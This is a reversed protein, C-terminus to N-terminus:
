TMANVGVHKMVQARVEADARQRAHFDREYPSLIEKHRQFMEQRIDSWDTGIGHPVAVGCGLRSAAEEGADIGPNSGTREATEHDNDAAVVVSGDPVRGLVGLSYMNGASFAAMVRSTRLCAFLALATAVGEALVTLTANPHSVMYSAGKFPAGPWFLKQGDPAIRQVTVLEYPRVRSAPVVLWGDDDVRMDACGEMGLDHSELYPHGGRLPSCRLYFERAALSAERQKRERKETRRRWAEHDFEPPRPAEHDARWMVTDSHTALDWGWGVQGDPALKYAGNKKRPHKETPCRRWRDDPAITGPRLGLSRLFAAFDSSM